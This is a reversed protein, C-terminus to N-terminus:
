LLGLAERETQRSVRRFADSKAYATKVSGKQNATTYPNPWFHIWRGGLPDNLDFATRDSLVHVGYAEPERVSELGFLIVIPWELGKAAHWTSVTVADQSGVRAITDGRSKGWDGDTGLEEFYTLFGVLSPADGRVRREECYRCAHARLADLNAIRQVQEGWAACRERMALVDIVADLATLVDLDQARERASILNQISTSAALRENGGLAVDVFAAADEPHDLIRVLTAAALRDRADVWLRLGALLVQAEASARLGVRAVVSAIGLQGLAESVRLCLDNTRCLIAVDSAAATRHSGTHRDWITPGTGLLNRAGAAVAQARLDKKM